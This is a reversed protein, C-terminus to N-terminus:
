HQQFIGLLGSHDPHYGPKETLAGDQHVLSVDQASPDPLYPAIIVGKELGSTEAHPTIASIYVKHGNDHLRALDRWWESQAWHPLVGLDVDGSGVAELVEIATDCTKYQAAGFRFRAVEFQQARNTVAITLPAQRNLSAAIIQRWIVEVTYPDLSSRRILNEILDAERGARFVRKSSKVAGVERVLRDRAELADLIAQDLGDIEKRLRILTEDELNPKNMKGKGLLGHRIAHCSM